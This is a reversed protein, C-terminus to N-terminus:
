PYLIAVISYLGICFIAFVISFMSVLIQRWYSMVAMAGLVVLIVVAMGAESM